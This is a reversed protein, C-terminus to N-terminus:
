AEGETPAARRLARISETVERCTRFAWLSEVEGAAAEIADNWAAAEARRAETLALVKADYLDRLETWDREAAEARERLAQIMDAAEAMLNRETTETGFAPERLRRLLVEARTPTPDTMEM